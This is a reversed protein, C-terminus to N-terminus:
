HGGRPALEILRTATRSSGSVLVFVHSGVVGVGDMWAGRRGRAMIRNNQELLSVTVGSDMPVVVDVVSGDPGVTWAYITGPHPVWYPPLWTDTASDFRLLFSPRGLGTGNEDGQMSMWITSGQPVIKDLVANQGWGGPVPFVAMQGTIPSWRVLAAAGDYVLDAPDYRGNNIGFWLTGHAGVTEGTVVSTVIRSLVVKRILRGSPTVEALIPHILPGWMGGDPAPTAAAVVVGGGIWVGGKGTVALGSGAGLGPEEGVAPVSVPWPTMRVMDSNGNVTLLVSTGKRTFAGVVMTMGQALAASAVRVDIATPGHGSGETWLPGGVPVVWTWQSGVGYIAALSMPWLNEGALAGHYPYQPRGSAHWRLRWMAHIAYPHVVSFFPVRVPKFSPLANLSDHPSGVPVLSCASMVAGAVLIIIWRFIRQRRWPRIGAAGM